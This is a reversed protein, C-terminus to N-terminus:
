SCWKSWNIWYEVWKCSECPLLVLSPFSSPTHDWIECRAHARTVMMQSTVGVSLSEGINVRARTFGTQKGVGTSILLSAKHIFITTKM